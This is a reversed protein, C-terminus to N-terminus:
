CLNALRIVPWAKNRKRLRHALDRCAMVVLDVVEAPLENQALDEAM